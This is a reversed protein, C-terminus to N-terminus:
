RTPTVPHFPPPQSVDRTTKNNVRNEKILSSPKVDETNVLDCSLNRRLHPSSLCPALSKVAVTSERGDPYRVQAFNPNAELLEVTDCIPENKSVRVFRYPFSFFREHPTTKTSM